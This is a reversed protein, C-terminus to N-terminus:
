SKSTNANDDEHEDEEESWESWLEGVSEAGKQVLESVSHDLYGMSKDYAAEVSDGEALHYSQKATLPSLAVQKVVEPTDSVASAAFSALGAVLTTAVSLVSMTASGTDKIASKINKVNSTKM